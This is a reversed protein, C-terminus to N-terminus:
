KASSKAKKNVFYQQIIGLSNSVLWYLVLGSPFTLFMFTFVIPMLMMMKAQRPDMGSPTMKQQLVMTLGMVIPLVYYPDKASLDHIWLIFPAGRIEIAILLIKYLAFFVPLQILMPLCGGIPNAKHKKYLEMTEKQVRQPDKKYKEKIAAMQPQLAQLKKMSKQGKNILPIFPIRVVITILIIAWGYNGTIEYFLKLIWFLPRSIISFFGFDVIHELGVGFPKLIEHKKPGAYLLFEGKEGTVEYAIEAGQTKRDGDKEWKWIVVDNNRSVSALASTFYKDEQAIWFINGKYEVETKSKRGFLWRQIFGIGEINGKDIDIKDTDKLLVPGIHVWTEEEDFIGFRSGLVVRYPQAGKVETTFNVKYSDKYFTFIKKISLGSSDTYFFTLAKSKSYRDLIISDKDVSYNIKTPFDTSKLVISLPPITVDSPVLSVPNREEDTYEKLDWRKITGGRTTFVASYLDTEVHIEKEGAPTEIPAAPIEAHVPKEEKEKEIGLERGVQQPEVKRQVPRKPALYSFMVLVLISLAIAILTRKEM